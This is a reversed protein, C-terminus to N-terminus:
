DTLEVKSKATKHYLHSSYESVSPDTEQDYSHISKTSNNVSSITNM